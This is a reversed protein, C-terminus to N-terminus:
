RPVCVLDGYPVTGPKAKHDMPDFVDYDLSQFLSVVEAASSGMSRLLTDSLETIIVPRLESLTRRAGSFVKGEAGEVDVKILGPRIGHRAVLEDLTATEVEELTFSEGIASPHILRGLSSYEERGAVVSLSLRGSSDSVALDLPTIRDEMENLSINRKLRRLAGQTPEVSFVHATTLQAGLVSFFGVNAGIDLIDKQPDAYKRFERVIEPEYLGLRVIRKFLDSQPSLEFVGEFEPISLRIDGRAFEGIHGLVCEASREGRQLYSRRVALPLRLLQRLQPHRRFLNRLNM